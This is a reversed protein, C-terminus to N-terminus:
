LPIFTTKEDPHANLRYACVLSAIRSDYQYTTLYHTNWQEEKTEEEKKEEEKKEEEPASTSAAAQAQIYQELAENNAKVEEM